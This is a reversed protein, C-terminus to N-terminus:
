INFGISITDLTISVTHNIKNELLSIFVIIKLILKVSIM